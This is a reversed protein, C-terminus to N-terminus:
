PGNQPEAIPSGESLAVVILQHLREGHKAANQNPEKAPNAHLAIAVGSLVMLMPLAVIVAQKRGSIGIGVGYGFSAIGRLHCCGFRRQNRFSLSYFDEPCLPDPLGRSLELLGNIPLVPVCDRALTL